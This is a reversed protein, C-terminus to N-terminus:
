VDTSDNGRAKLRVSKKHLDASMAQAKNSTIVAKIVLSISRNEFGAPRSHFSAPM